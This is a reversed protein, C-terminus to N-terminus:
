ASAIQSDTMGRKAFDTLKFIFEVSRYDYKPKRGGHGKKKEDSM